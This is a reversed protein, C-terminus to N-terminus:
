PQNRSIENMEHKIWRDRIIETIKKELLITAHKRSYNACFQRYSSFVQLYVTICAQLAIAGMHQNANNHALFGLSGTVPLRWALCGSAGCHRM